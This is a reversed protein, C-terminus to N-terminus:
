GPNLTVYVIERSWTETFRETIIYELGRAVKGMVTAIHRIKQEPSAKHSQYPASSYCVSFGQREHIYDRLTMECLDMDVFIINLPSHEFEGSRLIRIVNEHTNEMCLRRIARLENPVDNGGGESVEMVKGAIRKFEAETTEATSSVQRVVTRSSSFSSFSFHLQIATLVEHVSGTSGWAIRRVYQLQPDGDTVWQFRRSETMALETSSLVPTESSFPTTISYLALDCARNTHECGGYLTEM